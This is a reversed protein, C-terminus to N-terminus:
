WSIKSPKDLGEQWNPSTHKDCLGIPYKSNFIETTRQPCYERAKKKTDTCITDTVIGDPQVFYDLPFGISPDNYTLAMFKGFIPAAARGGQGDSSRFKIRNDDFGVWAGAAVHPTFGIFWADGYDNTTGTKGAAPLHFYNRVRIGTGSNVADQMLDTMLFASEKNLVEKKEPITQEILNGDKDEIKLISVPEVLIGEHAYVGYASTIELPSVEETGLAIADYPRIPSRIGMRTAYEVVQKAPAIELIARIAILNISKKLGERLTYKGGFDGDYNGPTWRTGDIMPITVPQNLLEYSVPFGNDLAVTYVFPKFASGPQRRIQVAHNLGYKFQRFNRGGVMALIHGSHPNIVVFGVEVTTTLRKVSDIFMPNSKLAASISDREEQSKAKKYSESERIRKGINDALIEPHTKWNWTEDFKPQFEAFHEEVAQNAYKQMRSDITTYIRLGDRLIDFGYTESKKVLQQRVWEVFHPAIGTRTEADPLKFVLSDSRIRDAEEPTILNGKRMQAIVVNRRAFARDPHRIPDYYGSGKLVGIFLSYEAPTLRSAPKGFYTQAASEIGYTGRGFSVVNLYLELIENKTFNREIQVATILERFKRTIKDFAHRDPKFYLSRSLQQTITSAGERDLDFALINKVMATFVRRLHFGWHDYFAKDETALLAELFGPPLQQLSVRTRNKVFFQDLVEGDISYIRTALEPRPNELQELSPLGDVIYYVYWTTALFIVMGILTVKGWHRRFLGPRKKMRSHRYEPDSFYREMDESSYKSDHSDTM